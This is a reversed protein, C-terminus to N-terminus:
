QQILLFSFSLLPRSAPSPRRRAGEAIATGDDGQGAALEVLLEAFRDPLVTIQQSVYFLCWKRIGTVKLGRLLRELDDDALTPRGRLSNLPAWNM